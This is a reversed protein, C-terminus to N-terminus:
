QTEHKLSKQYRGFPLITRDPKKGTSQHRIKKEAYAVPDTNDEVNPNDEEEDEQQNRGTEQM